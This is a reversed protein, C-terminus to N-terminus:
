DWCKTSTATKVGLATISFSTCDTDAAQTGTATATATFTAANAGNAIAVTYWGNETTAPLGLGAPPATTLVANAAYTNNELYFREQAAALNLLATKAEVRHTRLVYSRYSPVAISALVAAIVVVIMLEILTFGRSFTRM